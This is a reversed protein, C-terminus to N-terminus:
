KKEKAAALAARHQEINVFSQADNLAANAAALEARAERWLAVIVGFEHDAREKVAALERELDIARSYLEDFRANTIQESPMRAHLEIPTPQTDPKDAMAQERAVALEDATTTCAAAYVPEGPPVILLGFTDSGVDRANRLMGTWPNFLWATAKSWERWQGAHSPYPEPEGTAPDFRMVTHQQKM